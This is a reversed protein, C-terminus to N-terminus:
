FAFFEVHAFRPRQLALRVEALRVAEDGIPWCAVDRGEDTVPATRRADLENHTM